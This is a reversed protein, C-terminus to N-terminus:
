VSTRSAQRFRGLAWEGLPARWTDFSRGCLPAFSSFNAHAQTISTGMKLVGENSLVARM